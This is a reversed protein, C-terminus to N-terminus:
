RARCCRCTSSPSQDVGSDPSTCGCRAHQLAVAAGCGGPGPVSRVVIVRDADMGSDQSYLAIWGRLMISGACLLLTALAVEVLLLAHRGRQAGTAARSGSALAAQPAQVTARFAPVLGVFLLTLMTTVVAFLGVRLDMRPEGMLQLWRPIQNSLAGLTAVSVLWGGLAGTTSILAAEVLLQRVLAWRGAGLATRVALERRRDEGHALLLGVVNACSILFVAAVAGFVLWLVPRTTRTLEYRLDRLTVGDFAGVRMNPRRVFLPKLRLAIADLETQAQQLSAGPALRGILFLSRATRDLASPDVADMPLIVEPAFRRRPTPFVFARPLVGVVTFQTGGREIIRGLVDVGGGFATRWLRYSIVAVPAAGPKFDDAVFARGVSPQTGLMDFFGASVAASPVQITEEPGRVRAPEGSVSYGELGALTHSAARWDQLDPQSVSMTWQEEARVAGYMAVLRSPERYPLPRFLVGDVVAFVTASLGIGLAITLVATVFFGRQRAFLRLAFRLDQLM